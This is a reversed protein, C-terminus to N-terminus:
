GTVKKTAMASEQQKKVDDEIFDYLYEAHMVDTYYRRAQEHTFGFRAPQTLRYMTAHLFTYPQMSAFVTGNVFTFFRTSASVPLLVMRQKAKLAKVTHALAHQDRRFAGSSIDTAWRSLLHRSKSRSLFMVGTHYPATSLGIDPFLSLVTKKNPAHAAGSAPPLRRADLMTSLAYLLFPALPQGIVMDSDVYLVYEFREPVFELLRTKLLKVRMHVNYALGNEKEGRARAAARQKKLRM